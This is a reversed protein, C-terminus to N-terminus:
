ADGEEDDEVYLEVHPEGTRAAEAFDDPLTLPPISPDGGPPGVALAEDQLAAEPIVKSRGLRAQGEMLAIVAVAAAVVRTQDEHLFVIAVFALVAVAAQAVHAYFKIPEDQIYGADSM